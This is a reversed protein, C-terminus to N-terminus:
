CSDNKRTFILRLLLLLTILSSSLPTIRFDRSWGSYFTQMVKNMFPKTYKMNKWGQGEKDWGQWSWNRWLERLPLYCPCNSSITWWMTTKRAGIQSRLVPTNIYGIVEGNSDCPSPLSLRLSAQSVGRWWLEPAEGAQLGPTAERLARCMDHWLLPHRRSCLFYSM